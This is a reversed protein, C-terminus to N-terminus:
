WPCPSAKRILAPDPAAVSPMGSLGPTVAPVARSVSEAVKLSRSLTSRQKSAARPSTAATMTSGIAALM